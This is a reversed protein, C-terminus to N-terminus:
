QPDLNGQHEPWLRRHDAAQDNGDAGPLSETPLLSLEAQRLAHVCPQEHWLRFELMIFRHPEYFEAAAPEAIRPRKAMNTM